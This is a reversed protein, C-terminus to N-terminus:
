LNYKSIYLNEEVEEKEKCPPNRGSGRLTPSFIGRVNNTTAHRTIERDCTVHRLTFSILQVEM